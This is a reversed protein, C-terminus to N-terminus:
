LCLPSNAALLFSPLQTCLFPRPERSPNSAAGCLPSPSSPNENEGGRMDDRCHVQGTGQPTGVDGDDLVPLTLVGVRAVDCVGHHTGTDAFLAFVGALTVRPARQDTVPRKM